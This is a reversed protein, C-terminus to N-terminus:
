DQVGTWTQGGDATVLRRGDALDVTAALASTARVGFLDAAEPFAVRQWRQGADDSRLVAGGRGVLWCVDPSPSSGATLPSPTGTEQTTWTSGGDASYQVVGAQGVRWRIQPDPSVVEFSPALAAEARAALPAAQDALSRATAEPASASEQQAGTSKQAAATARDEERTLTSPPEAPAPARADTSATPETAASAGQALARDDSRQGASSASEEARPSAAPEPASAIEFNQREEPLPTRQGPVAVWLLVAASAATAPVLWNLTGRRKWWPDAARGSRDDPLSPAAARAMAATVEQCRQCDAIHTEVVEREGATLADDALAALAEIDPCDGAPGGETRLTRRLLREISQDRDTKV